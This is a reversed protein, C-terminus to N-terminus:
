MRKRTLIVWTFPYMYFDIRSDVEAEDCPEEYQLHFMNVFIQKSSIEWM